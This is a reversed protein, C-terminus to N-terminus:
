GQPMPRWAIDSSATFDGIPSMDAGDADMVFLQTTASDVGSAEGTFAIMAGDPSWAVKFTAITQTAPFATAQPGDPDVTFLEYGGKVPEVLAIRTGDPSWRPSFGASAIPQMAGTGDANMVCVCSGDPTDAIVVLAIFRGDPSWDPQLDSAADNTLRTEGTGDAGIVYLQSPCILLDAFRQSTRCAKAARAAADSAFVIRSGDPSWSPSSDMGHDTTIRTRGSGDANMVFLDYDKGSPASPDEDTYHVFAVRTGDPSWAYDQGVAGPDVTDPPENPDRGDGFLLTQGSGDSRISYVFSPGDGGGSRAWIEGNAPAAGTGDRQQQDGAIWGIVQNAGGPANLLQRADTGDARITSVQWMGSSGLSTYAIWGGDPSWVPWLEQGPGSPLHLL